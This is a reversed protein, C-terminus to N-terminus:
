TPDETPTTDDAPAFGARYDLQDAYQSVLALVAATMTGFRQQNVPQGAANLIAYRKPRTM